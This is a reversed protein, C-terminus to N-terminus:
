QLGITVPCKRYTNISNGSGGGGVPTLKDRGYILTVDMMTPHIPTKWSASEGWADSLPNCDRLGSLKMEMRWAHVEGQFAQREDHGPLHLTKSHAKHRQHGTSIFYLPHFDASSVPHLLIRILFARTESQLLYTIKVRSQKRFFFLNYALSIAMSDTHM